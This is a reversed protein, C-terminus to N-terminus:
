GPLQNIHHALTFDKDTLGGESHTSLLLEVHNYRIIIDPHHDMQEALRAVENVFKMAETFDRFQFERRLQNSEVTWGPVQKLKEQIQNPTLKM